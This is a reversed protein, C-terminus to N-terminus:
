IGPLSSGALRRQHATRERGAASLAQRAANERGSVSLGGQTRCVRASEALGGSFTEDAREGERKQWGKREKKSKSQLSGNPISDPSIVDSWIM